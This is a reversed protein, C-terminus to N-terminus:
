TRRLMSRAKLIARRSFSMSSAKSISDVSEHVPDYSPGQLRRTDFQRYAADLPLPGFEALSDLRALDAQIESEGFRDGLRSYYKDFVPLFRDWFEHNALQVNTDLATPRLRSSSHSDDYWLLCAKRSDDMYPGVKEWWRDLYPTMDLDLFHGVRQVVDDNRLLLEEMSFQLRHDLQSCAIMYRAYDLAPRVVDLNTRYVKTAIGVWLRTIWELPACGVSFIPTHHASTKPTTFSPGRRRTPTSFCTEM